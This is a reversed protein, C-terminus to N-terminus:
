IGGCLVDSHDWCIMNLMYYMLSIQWVGVEELENVIAM